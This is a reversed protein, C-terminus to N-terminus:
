GGIAIHWGLVAVSLLSADPAGPALIPNKAQPCGGGGSVIM